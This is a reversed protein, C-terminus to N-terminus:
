PRDPQYPSYSSTSYVRPTLIQADPGALEAFESGHVFYADAEPLKDHVVAADVGRVESVIDRREDQDAGVPADPRAAALREDPVIGVILRDCRDRAQRIVDLTAVEVVEFAGVLYGIEM